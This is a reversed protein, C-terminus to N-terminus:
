EGEGRIKAINEAFWKEGKAVLLNREVTTRPKAVTRKTPKTKKNTMTNDRPVLGM